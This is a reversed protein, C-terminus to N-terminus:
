LITCKRLIPLCVNKVMKQLKQSKRNQPGPTSPPHIFPRPYGLHDDDPDSIRM